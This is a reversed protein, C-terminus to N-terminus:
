TKYTYKCSESEFVEQLLNHIIIFNIIIIIIIIIITNKFIFTHYDL